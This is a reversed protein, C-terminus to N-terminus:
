SKARPFEHDFTDLLMMNASQSPYIGDKIWARVRKLTQIEMTGCGYCLPQLVGDVQWNRSRQCHTCEDSEENSM